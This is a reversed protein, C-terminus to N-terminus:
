SKGRVKRGQKQEKLETSLIQFSFCSGSIDRPRELFDLCLYLGGPHHTHVWTCGLESKARPEQEFEQPTESDEAIILSDHNQLSYILLTYLTSFM